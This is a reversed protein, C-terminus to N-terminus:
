KSSRSPVKPEKNSGGGDKQGMGVGNNLPRKVDPTALASGGPISFSTGYRQDKM